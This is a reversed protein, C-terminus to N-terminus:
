AYIGISQTSMITREACAARAQITAAEKKAVGESYKALYREISARVSEIGEEEVDSRADPASDAHM